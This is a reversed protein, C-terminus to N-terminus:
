PFLVAMASWNCVATRILMNLGCNGSVIARLGRAAGVRLLMAWLSCETLLAGAARGAARGRGRWVRARDCGGAGRQPGSKGGDARSGDHRAGAPPTCWTVGSICPKFAQVYWSSLLFSRGATCTLRQPNEPVVKRPRVESCCPSCSVKVLRPLRTYSCRGVGPRAPLSAARSAGSQVAGAELGVASRGPEGAGAAADRGTHPAATCDHASHPMLDLPLWRSSPQACPRCLAGSVDTWVCALLSTM